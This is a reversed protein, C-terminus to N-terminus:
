SWRRKEIGRVTLFTFLASASVYYLVNDIKLVGTTFQSFRKIVSVIDIVKDVVTIGTSSIFNNFLFLALLVGMTVILAIIQSETLSSFFIGMSIFCLGLLVYGIYTSIIQGWVASGHIAIIVVYPFTTAMAIGFVCLAALLKGLVISWVSVPSTLLLQDTKTGREEAILRMTLVPILLVLVVLSNRLPASVDGIGMRLVYTDFYIGSIAAFVGIFIYGVPSIFYALMERKFIAKM